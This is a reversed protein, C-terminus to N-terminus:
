VYQQVLSYTPTFIHTRTHTYTHGNDPTDTCMDTNPSANFWTHAHRDRQSLSDFTTSVSVCDDAVCVDVLQQTQRMCVIAVYRLTLPCGNGHLLVRLELWCCLGCIM